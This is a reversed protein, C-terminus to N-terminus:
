SRPRCRSASTSSTTATTARPHDRGPKQRHRPRRGQGHRPHDHGQQRERVKGHATRSARGRGEDGRGVAAGRRRDDSQRQVAARGRGHGEDLPGNIIELPRPTRLAENSTRSVARGQLGGPHLARPARRAAALPAARRDGQGQARPFARRVGRDSRRRAVLHSGRRAQAGRRSDIPYRELKESNVIALDLGAQVCHYLM